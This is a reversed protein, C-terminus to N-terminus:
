IGVCNHNITLTSSQVQTPATIVFQMTYTGPSQCAISVSKQLTQSASESGANYSADESAGAVSSRWGYSVLGPGNQTNVKASFVYRKSCKPIVPKPSSCELLVDDQQFFAVAASFPQPQSDGDGDDDDDPPNQGDQNQPPTPSIAFSSPSGAPAQSDNQDTVTNKKPAATTDKSQLSEYGQTINTVGALVGAVASHGSVRLITVVGVLVFFLLTIIVALSYDKAFHRLNVISHTWLRPLGRPVFDAFHAGQYTSPPNIATNQALM